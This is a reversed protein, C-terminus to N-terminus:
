ENLDGKFFLKRACDHVYNIFVRVAPFLTRRKHRILYFNRVLVIDQVDLTQLQGSQVHGEVALRSTVGVGMGALLCRVLAETNQVQVAVEFDKIQMGTGALGKELALRTGSGKERMVWPLTTLEELTMQRKTRKDLGPAAFFSLEDQMVSAFDLDPNEAFGGVMGLDLDGSLLQECVQSSDGVRLDISVGPYRAKFGALVGPLFYNAPITSGGIVLEGSVRNKLEDIEARTEGQIRFLERAKQYLLKGARTPIATRSIRDFLVVDLERELYSIHSSITPQSLFMEQGAKSFSKTEYVRCFAELKRIDM